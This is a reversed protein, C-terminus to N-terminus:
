NPKDKKSNGDKKKEKEKEETLKKLSENTLPWDRDILEHIADKIKSM